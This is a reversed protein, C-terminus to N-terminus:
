TNDLVHNLAVLATSHESLLMLEIRMQDLSLVMNLTHMKGPLHISTNIQINTAKIELDNLAIDM